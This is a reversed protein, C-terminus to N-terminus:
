AACVRDRGQRKAQYLREDAAEIADEISAYGGREAVGFSATLALTGNRILTRHGAIAQRLTEAVAQAQALTQDPLFLIFEEGGWRAAINDGRRYADLLRAIDVLVRDGVPHGYEDNIRKFHDIDLMVLSAPRGKEVSRRWLPDALTM